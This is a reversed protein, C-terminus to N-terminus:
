PSSLYKIIGNRLGWAVKWRFDDQALLTDDRPSSLYGPEAQVVPVRSWNFGALDHAPVIGLDETGCSKIVEAQVFLAAEKSQQYISGTWNSEAPYLTQTGKIFPDDSNACHIRMYLDANANNAIEARTANSIEVENTDRTMVVKMGDKELLDKLKTAIDLNVMYEANGTTAGRIEPEPTDKRTM